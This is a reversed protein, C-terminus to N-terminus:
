LLTIKGKFITGNAQLQYYYIGPALQSVDVTAENSGQQQTASQQLITKGLVNNLQIRADSESNSDAYWTIYIKDKAPNPFVQATELEMRGPVSGPQTTKWFNSGDIIRFYSYREVLGCPTTNAGLTVKFYANNKITNYNAAFWGNTLDNFGYNNLTTTLTVTGLVAGIPNGTNDVQQVSLVYNQITLSGSPIFTGQQIGTSFAGLWGDKCFVTAAPQTYPSSSALQGINTVLNQAPCGSPGQLKFDVVLGARIINFTQTISTTTCGSTFTLVIRVGGAYSGLSFLQGVNVDGSMAPAGLPNGQLALPLGTATFTNGSVSGKQLTIGANTIYGGTNFHLMIQTNDCLVVQPIVPPNSQTIGNLDFTPSMTYSSASEGDIQTQIKYGSGSSVGTGNSFTRIYVQTTGNIKVPLLTNNAINLAYLPGAAMNNDGLGTNPNTALYLQGDRGREIETYGWSLESTTSPLTITSFINIVTDTDSLQVYSVNGSTPAGGHWSIYVRDDGNPMPVYEYGHIHRSTVVPLGASLETTTYSGSLVDISWVRGYGDSFLVYKGNPSVEMKNYTDFSTSGLSVTCLNQVAGIAGTLSITFSKLVNSAADYFYVIRTGNTKLPAVAVTNSHQDGSQGVFLDVSDTEILSSPNTADLKRLVLRSDQPFHNLAWEVAYYKECLGPIPFVNSYSKSAVSTSSLNYSGCSPVFVIAPDTGSTTSIVQITQTGACSLATMSSPVGANTGPFHIRTAPQLVWDYSQATASFGATTLLAAAMIRNFPLKM